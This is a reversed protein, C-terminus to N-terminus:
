LNKMMVKHEQQLQNMKKRETDKIIVLNQETEQLNKESEEETDNEEIYDEFPDEHQEASHLNLIHYFEHWLKRLWQVDQSCRIHNTKMYLFWYVDGAHHESYGQLM